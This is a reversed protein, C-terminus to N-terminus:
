DTIKEIDKLLKTLVAAATGAEFGITGQDLPSAPRKEVLRRVGVCVGGILLSSLWFGCVVLRLGFQEDGPSPWRFEIMSRFAIMLLLVGFPVLAGICFTRQYNRRYIIVTILVATVIVSFLVFLPIAVLGPMSFTLSCTVAAATTVSFMSFLSFQFRPPVEPPITTQLEEAMPSDQNTSM